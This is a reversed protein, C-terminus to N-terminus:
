KVTKLNNVVDLLIGNVVSCKFEPYSLYSYPRARSCKALIAVMQWLLEYYTPLIYTLQHHYIIMTHCYVPFVSPKECNKLYNEPIEALFTTSYMCRFAINETQRFM